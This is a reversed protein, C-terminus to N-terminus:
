CFLIYVSSFVLFRPLQSHMAVPSRGLWAMGKGMENRRWALNSTASGIWQRIIANKSNICYKRQLSSRQGLLKSTQCKVKFMQLTDGTIHYFETGFKFAIRPTTIAIDTNSRIVKFMPCRTASLEPIIKAL